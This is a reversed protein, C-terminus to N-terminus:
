LFLLFKCGESHRLMMRGMVSSSLHGGVRPPSVAPSPPVEHLEFSVLAESRIGTFGSKGWLLAFFGVPADGMLTTRETGM